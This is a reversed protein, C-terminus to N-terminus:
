PPRFYSMDQSSLPAYHRLFGRRFWSSVTKNCFCCRRNFDGHSMDAKRAENKVPQLLASLAHFSSGHDTVKKILRSRYRRQRLAHKMRGGPTLQYRKEATRCSQVRAAHACESNCYIQGRDCHSCILTQAHCRMCHFLRLMHKM